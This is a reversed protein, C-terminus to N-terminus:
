RNYIAIMYAPLAIIKCQLIAFWIKPWDICEEIGRNPDIVYLSNDRIGTLVIAHPTYPDGPLDYLACDSVNVILPINKALYERITQLSPKEMVYNCGSELCRILSELHDARDLESSMLQKAQLKDLLKEKSLTSDRLPDTRYLDYGFFDVAFGLKALFLACDTLSPRISFTTASKVFFCRIADDDMYTCYVSLVMKLCSILCESKGPSQQIPIIPIRVPINSINMVPTNYM